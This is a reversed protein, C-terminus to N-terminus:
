EAEERRWRLDRSALYRLAARKSGPGTFRALERGDTLTVAWGHNIRVLMAALSTM